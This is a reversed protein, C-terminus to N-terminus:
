MKYTKVHNITPSYPSHRHKNQANMNYIIHRSTLM